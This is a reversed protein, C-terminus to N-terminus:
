QLMKISPKAPEIQKKKTSRKKQYFKNKTSGIRYISGRRDALSVNNINKRTTRMRFKMIWCKVAHKVLNTHDVVEGCTSIQDSKERSNM